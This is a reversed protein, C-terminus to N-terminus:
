RQCDFVYQTCCIQLKPRYSQLSEVDLFCVGHWAQHLTSCVMPPRPEGVLLRRLVETLGACGFTSSYLIAWYLQTNLNICRCSCHYQMHHMSSAYRATRILCKKSFVPPFCFLAHKVSGPTPLSLARKKM